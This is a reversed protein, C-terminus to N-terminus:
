VQLAYINPFLEVLQKEIGKCIRIDRRHGVAVWKVTEEKNLKELHKKYHCLGAKIALAEAIEIKLDM